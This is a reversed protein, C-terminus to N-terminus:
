GSALRKKIARDYIKVYERASRHWSFDERMGARQLARWARRRRFLDLARTLADLLADPTYAEFVIGTAPRRRPGTAPAPADADRVTDALGGVARVVPVTGYRQSYMQNLGSPEFRSPMLFMDAGGEILHALSEDFGIRAGIRDAHAAALTMWLRQYRDEGEGLVVFSADLRPLRDALAAILDLGKQDVMRSVMGVLPRALAAANVPLGYRSMVAAKAAAKGALNTASFPEPLFPDRSPDWAEVDIGNPVGELDMRRRRLIGDFGCGFEPTQIEEAYRRSVTTVIDADNIGGKLLSVRGWYEMRDMTFQDWGLDLRPLWDAECLGQYALNHITFVSPTGALVPHSAYMSRLYVPALAAQWDHAHVIAPAGHHVAYELAARVLVAFRRPNDPYDAGGPGYTADREFLDPCDVLIARAGDGLPADFFAVTRTWGGVTIPCADIRAGATVGQYKPLVLTADWGVRALAAPLSGLVDALGGTKVFPLAESGIILVSRRRVPRGRPKPM